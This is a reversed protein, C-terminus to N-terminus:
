GARLLRAALLPVFSMFQRNANADGLLGCPANLSKVDRELCTEFDVFHKARCRRNDAWKEVHVRWLV